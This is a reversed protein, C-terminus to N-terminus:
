VMNMICKMALLESDSASGVHASKQSDFDYVSYLKILSPVSTINTFTVVTVMVSWLRYHCYFLQFINLTVVFLGVIIITIIKNIVNLYVCNLCMQTRTWVQLRETVLEYRKVVVGFWTWFLALDNFSDCKLSFNTNIITLAATWVYGCKINFM